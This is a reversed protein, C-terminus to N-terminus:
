VQSSEKKRRWRILRGSALLIIGGLMAISAPEPVPTLSQSTIVNLHSGAGLAMTIKDSLSYGAALSAIMTSATGSNSSGGTYSQTSNTLTAAPAGCYVTTPPALDNATDVCSNQGVTGTGTTSTISLSSEYMDPPPTTPATFNQASTWITLNTAATTTIFLTASEEEALGPTGPSNSSASLVDIVVGTGSASCSVPGASIISTACVTDPGGNISYSIQISAQALPALLVVTAAALSSILRKMTNNTREVASIRKRRL